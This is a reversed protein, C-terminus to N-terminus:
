SGGAARKVARAVRAEIEHAHKDFAPALAPQAPQFRTGLEVYPAYEEGYGVVLEGDESVEQFLSAKLAGTDEATAEYADSYVAEGHERLEDNMAAQSSYNLLHNFHTIIQVAM